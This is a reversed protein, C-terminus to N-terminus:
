AGHQSHGLRNIAATFRDLAEAVLEAAHITGAAQLYGAVLAPCETPQGFWARVAEAGDILYADAADTVSDRGKDASGQADAM